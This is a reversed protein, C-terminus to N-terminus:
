SRVHVEEDSQQEIQKASKDLVVYMHSGGGHSRIRGRDSWKRKWSKKPSAAFSSITLLTMTPILRDMPIM